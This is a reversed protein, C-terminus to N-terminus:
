FFGEKMRVTGQTGRMPQGETTRTMPVDNPVGPFHTTNNEIDIKLFKTM